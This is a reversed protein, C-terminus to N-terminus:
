HRVRVGGIISSVSIPKGGSGIVVRFGSEGMKTLLANPVENQIEGRLSSVVLNANVGYAVRFDVGGTISSIQIGAEGPQALGLTLGNALSSIEAAQVEALTVQGAISNLRLMGDIPGVRVSGAINNLTLSVSRPLTLKVRQYDRVNSCYQEHRIVLSTKTQEVITKYSDFDARTQASEFIDVQAM